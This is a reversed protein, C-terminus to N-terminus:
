PAKEEPPEFILRVRFRGSGEPPEPFPSAALAAQRGLSDLAESGSSKRIRARRLAGNGMLRLELTVARPEELDGLAAEYRIEGAIKEWLQIEYDSLNRTDERSLRTVQADEAPADTEPSRNGFLQRFSSVSDESGSEPNAASLDPRGPTQTEPPAQIPATREGNDRGIVPKSGGSESTQARSPTGQRNERSAASQNPSEGAPAIRVSVTLPPREPEPPVQLWARVLMALLVHVFLALSLSLIIRYATTNKSEQM